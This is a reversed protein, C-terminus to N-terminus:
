NLMIKNFMKMKHTDYFPPLGTIMEYFLVGLSYFDIMFGQGEQKSFVSEKNQNQKNLKSLNYAIMEPSLYEPSGCFTFTRDRRTFNYKSLGFDTLKITGDFDIM